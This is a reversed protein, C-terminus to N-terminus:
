SRVLDSLLMYRVIVTMCLQQKTQVARHGDRVARYWVIDGNREPDGAFIWLVRGDGVDFGSGVHEYPLAFVDVFTTQAIM